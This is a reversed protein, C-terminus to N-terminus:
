GRSVWLTRGPNKLAYCSKPDGVSTTATVTNSRTSRPDVEVAVARHLITINVVVRYTTKEKVLFGSIVFRVKPSASM